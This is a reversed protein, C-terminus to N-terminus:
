PESSRWAADAQRLRERRCYEVLRAREIKSDFSSASFRGDGGPAIGVAVLLIGLRLDRDLPEALEPILCRLGSDFRGTVFSNIMRFNRDWGVLLTAAQCIAPELRMPFVDLHIVHNASILSNSPSGDSGAAVLSTSCVYHLAASEHHDSLIEACYASERVVERVREVYEPSTIQGCAEAQQCSRLLSDAIASEMQAMNATAASLLHPPMMEEVLAGGEFAISPTVHFKSWQRWLDRQSGSIQPVWSGHRIVRGATVDFYLEDDEPNPGRVAAIAPGSSGAVFSGCWSYVTSQGGGKALLLASPLQSRTGRKVWLEPPLHLYIGRALLGSRKISRARRRLIRVKRLRKRIKRLRGKRAPPSGTADPVFSSM